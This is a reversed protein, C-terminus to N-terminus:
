EAVCPGCWTAWFDVLVVKGKYGAISLPKGEIDKEEFDPFKTGAVLSKRIKTAEAQKKMNELLADAGKGQRSEPFDQKVQKILEEAKASNDLVQAYLMAKMMLVQAVDDTKEDKHAALIKDFEKLEEVLAEETPKGDKLKARVKQVLADLEAKAGSKADSPKAAPAAADAADAALSLNSPLAVTAAALLALLSNKM